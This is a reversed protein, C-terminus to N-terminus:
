DDGFARRESRLSLRPRGGSGALALDLLAGRIPALRAVYRAIMRPRGSWKQKWRGLAEDGPPTGMFDFRQMGRETARELARAM